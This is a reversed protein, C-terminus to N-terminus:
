TRDHTVEKGLVDKINAKAQLFNNSTEDINNIIADFIEKDAIKQRYEKPLHNIFRKFQLLSQFDASYDDFYFWIDNTDKNINFLYVKENEEARAFCEAIQLNVDMSFEQFYTNKFNDIFKNLYKEDESALRICKLYFKQINWLFSSAVNNQSEGINFSNRLAYEIEKAIQKSYVPEYDYNLINNLIQEIDTTNTYERYHEIEITYTGASSEVYTKNYVYTCDVEDLFNDQKSISIFNLYKQILTDMEPFIYKKAFEFEYLNERQNYVSLGSYDSAFLHLLFSKSVDSDSIDYDDAYDASQVMDDVIANAMKLFSNKKSPYENFYNEFTEKFHSIQEKDEPYKEALEEFFLEFNENKYLNDFDNIADELEKKAKFVAALTESINFEKKTENSKYKMISSLDYNGNKDKKLLGLINKFEPKLEIKMDEIESNSLRAFLSNLYYDYNEFSGDSLFSVYGTDFYGKRGARGAMQWFESPKVPGDYFKALQAFIVREAPLNVGLALSDTGVIVNILGERYLTEIFLKEKPLMRGYYTGVGKYIESSVGKIKLTEALADIKKRYYDSLYHRNYAIEEAIRDCNRCSFCFVIANQIDDYDYSENEIKLETARKSTEFFKFEKNSIRSLYEKLKEPNGFTASLVLIDSSPDTNIIGDIYARARDPNNAIYHFEDIIVKQNPRSAYKSTYIEQTCCIIRADTNEKFDGTNIGVDLGMEVLEAYRENSLAKIPATIIVKQDENHIDAWAYAVNTKGSGTPASLIGSSNSLKEIAEKQWPYLEENPDNEMDELFDDFSYGDGLSSSFKMFDSKLSM